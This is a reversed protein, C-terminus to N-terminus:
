TRPPVLRLTYPRTDAERSDMRVSAPKTIRHGEVVVTAGPFESAFYFPQGVGDSADITLNRFTITAGQKSAGDHLVHVHAPGGNEIGQRVM